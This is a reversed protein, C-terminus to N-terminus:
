GEIGFLAQDFGILMVLPLGFWELCGTALRSAVFTGAEKLVVGAKFSKSEFVWLKNTIFAFAVAIIWSLVNAVSALMVSNAIVGSFLMEFLAYSVWSIVTTLGGVFLYVVIEKLNSSIGKKM